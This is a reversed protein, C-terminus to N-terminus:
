ERVIEGDIRCYAREANKFATEYDDAVSVVYGCGDLNTHYERITDGVNLHHHIEVGLDNEIREFNPLEKIVGPTLALLRTVVCKPESQPSLEVADGVAAKIISGMYDIGTGAPIINSGILNGGMRAGMDIIHVSGDNGLLLDMNVSGFNVGLARIAKEACEKIHREIQPSLCCPISHGLEAYYPEKTMWKQMVALIYVQGDYVFSEVGYEKGVIFSEVLAKHALSCEMAINCAAFFDDACDVRNAGRSGSGDCPKVMVPFKVKSIVEAVDANCSVEFAQETDDAQACLLAKRVSYKNKIRQAVAYNIGPLNLKESVYSASLVGYDTAATLVGDIKKERAYTLCAEKDIINIQAYEDAYKFGPACKNGDVALTYYGLKKAHKIVYTQLFGAGIVLIKKCIEGM